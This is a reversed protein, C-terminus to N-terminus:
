LYLEGYYTANQPGINTTTAYGTVDQSLYGTDATCNDSECQNSKSISGSNNQIHAATWSNPSYAIARRIDSRQVSQCFSGRQINLDNCYPGTYALARATLLTMSLIAVAAFAILAASVRPKIVALM